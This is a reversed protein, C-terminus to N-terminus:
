QMIIILHHTTFNFHFFNDINIAIGRNNPARTPQNAPLKLPNAPIFIGVKAGGRISKGMTQLIRYIRM